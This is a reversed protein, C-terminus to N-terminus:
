FHLGWCCIEEDPNVFPQLRKLNVVSHYDHNRPGDDVLYCSPHFYESLTNMKVILSIESPGMSTIEGLNWGVIDLFIKYILSKLLDM